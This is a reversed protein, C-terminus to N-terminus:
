RTLACLTNRNELAGMPPESTDFSGCSTHPKFARGQDRPHLLESDIGALQRLDEANDLDDHCDTSTVMTPSRIEWLKPARAEFSNPLHQARTRLMIAKITNPLAPAPASANMSVNRFAM